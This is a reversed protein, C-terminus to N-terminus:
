FRIGGSLRLTRPAVRARVRGYDNGFFGGATNVVVQTETVSADALVTFADVAVVIETRGYPFGRGLHLDLSSRSEYRYSGRPRIFIRQGSISRLLYRNFPVTDTVTPDSPRPVAVAYETLLDSILMTPTVRDGSAYSLFAGGRVRGPLQAGVYVKAEFRSQNSLAGFFGYQENLRVWPGPGGTTYDDPGTVANFNGNLASITASGGGWWSPYRADVRLQLQDFRRTAQPVSTLVLDPAYQLSALAAPDLSPPAFLQRNTGLLVGQRLLEQVWLIDDNSIALRELVLPVGDLLVPRHFRDRVIVNEVVTYNSALNRDVLAVMNRNRRRIYAVGAKWRAGIGRELSLVGQDVFPQHYGEVRGAAALRNTQELRFMGDAALSDREALTFADSPLAPAPGLYSWIEEDSYVGAGAVRDFLGGFMPQHYRGWHAQAVLGNNRHFEAVLGIRVDFAEDRVATIQPGLEPTLAGVWRGLRIGPNFQLWDLIAIHDQLFLAANQVHSDLRVEGGWATGIAGGFVWTAPTQPDFGLVDLPRWTMTGNRRQQFSWAGWAYEGGLKVDHEFGVLRVPRSWVATVGYSSPAGRTRWPANQYRPPNVQRLIEIGPIGQGTYGDERQAAAYGGARVTLANGSGWSRQWTLNGTANWQRLHTTAAAEEYGTQGTRDGDQHQGMLSAQLLDHDGLKWSLKALWQYDTLTPPPAVFQQSRSSLYNVVIEEQRIAHGFLAFHLRDPILPGRLQADIDWRQALERGIEQAILNSGNLRHSEFSTQLNGELVNGGQLTVIEVVGGQAGAVDAGAGLGRIALSEIWSPNPLLVAGGVGVHNVSTGDLEYANAQASAGGWIQDPRAGPTLAILDRADLTTPLLAIEDVTLRSGMEARPSVRFSRESVVVTDLTLATSELVFVLGAPEAAQIELDQQFTKYGLRRVIFHYLGPAIIRIRWAGAADTRVRAVTGEHEVQVDAFPVARGLRDVVRGHIGDPNQVLLCIALWGIHM